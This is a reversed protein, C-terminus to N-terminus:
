RNEEALLERKVRASGRGDSGKPEKAGQSAGPKGSVRSPRDKKLEPEPSVALRSFWNVGRPEIKGKVPKENKEVLPNSYVRVRGGDKGSLM